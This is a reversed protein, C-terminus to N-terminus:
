IEIQEQRLTGKRQWETGTMRCTLKSIKDLRLTQEASVLKKVFDTLIQFVLGLRLFSCLFRGFPVFSRQLWSIFREWVLFCWRNQFDKVFFLDSWWRWFCRWVFRLRLLLFWFCFTITFSSFLLSFCRLSDFILWLNLFTCFVVCHLDIRLDFNFFTAWCWRVIIGWVVITISNEITPVAMVLFLKLWLFFLNLWFKFYRWCLACSNGSWLYGELQGLLVELTKEVASSTRLCCTFTVTGVISCTHDLRNAHYVWLRLGRVIEEFVEQNLLQFLRVLGTLPLKSNFVFLM